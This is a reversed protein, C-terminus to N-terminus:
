PVSQVEIFDSNSQVSNNFRTEIQRDFTTTYNENIEPVTIIMQVNISGDPAYNDYDLILKDYQIIDKLYVALEYTKRDDVQGSNNNILEYVVARGKTALDKIDDAELSEAQSPVYYGEVVNLTYDSFAGSTRNNNVWKMAYANAQLNRAIKARDERRTTNFNTAEGSGSLFTSMTIGPALKTANNVNDANLIIYNLDPVFRKNSPIGSPTFDNFNTTGRNGVKSGGRRQTGRQGSIRGIAPPTTSAYNPNLRGSAVANAVFTENARNNPDRLKSRVESATMNTTSLGGTEALKNFANTLEIADISVNMVGRSGRTFYSTLINSTPLVTTPTATNTVSYGAASGTGGGPDPDAYNQSNTADATVALAATGDLDGHFTPATVGEGFTAGKGYMVVGEGGITGTSGMLLLSTAAINANPSSIDIVKQATMRLTAGSLVDLNGEGVLKATGKTVSTMNGLTTTTNSLIVTESKNQQVVIGKNGTVTERHSGKITETLNGKLNVNMNLASVNFNGGVKFDVDGKFDYSANGSVVITMDDKITMIHNKGVSIGISGDPLMDIGAGTRHKILIREGAPTDNFEIIHGSPTENIDSKTPQTPLEPSTIGLNKGDAGAYGLKKNNSGRWGKDDFTGAATEGPENGILEDDRDEAM